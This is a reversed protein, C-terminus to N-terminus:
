DFIIRFLKGYFPTVTDIVSLLREKLRPNRRAAIAIGAFLSAILGIILVTIPKKFARLLSWSPVSDITPVLTALNGDAVVDCSYDANIPSFGLECIFTKEPVLDTLIIRRNKSGASFEDSSINVWVPQSERKPETIEYLFSGKTAIGIKIESAKAQGKNILSVRLYAPALEIGQKKLLQLVNQENVDRPITVKEAKINYYVKPIRGFVTKFSPLATILTVLITLVTLTTAIYFESGRPQARDVALGIALDKANIVESLGLKEAKDKEFTDLLEKLAKNYDKSFDIYRIDALSEPLHTEDIRAPLITMQAKEGYKQFAARIERNVWPSKVSNESLLVIIYDSSRLGDQIRETISDGVLIQDEDFWVDIKSEKLDSTLRKAISKDASAYSIFVSAM